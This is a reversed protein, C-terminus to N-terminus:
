LITKIDIEVLDYNDNYLYLKNKSFAEIAVDKEINDWSVSDATNLIFLSKGTVNEEIVKECMRDFIVPAGTYGGAIPILSTSAYIEDAKKITDWTYEIKHWAYDIVDSFVREVFPTGTERLFSRVERKVSRFEDAQLIDSEIYIRRKIDPSTNQLDRLDTIYAESKLCEPCNAEEPNISSNESQQHTRVEKGCVSTYTYNGNYGDRSYHTITM